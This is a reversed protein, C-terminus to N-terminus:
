RVVFLELRSAKGAAHFVRMTAKQFDEPKAEFIDPVFTQPNRDTLPFWSSQIQVMIRHGKRFTHDIDPMEFRLSDAQMAVFAAPKEFSRRYRGRFPEGRVLQQYGAVTFGTTDGPWNPADDPFVDILKVDFDADTGSTAVFLVPSVPGAVTVDETLADTQFTLVDARRAAFRQDGTMYDRPMGSPDARDVVPVPNAPDSIYEAFQAGGKPPEFSLRGGPQLFLSKKVAGPPPFADFREWRDAGTRFVLVKPLKPDPANKLHHMFFPFEVSDRFYPGAKFTWRLSGFADGDGRAWGGHPWPGVVIHNDIGKALREISRFVGWPGALDEADYYGGVELM